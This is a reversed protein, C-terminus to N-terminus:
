NSLKLGQLGITGRYSYFFSHRLQWGITLEAAVLEWAVGKVAMHGLKTFLPLHYGSYKNPFYYIVALLPM